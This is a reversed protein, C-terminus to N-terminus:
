FARMGRGLRAWWWWLCGGNQNREGYIFKATEQGKNLFFFFSFFDHQSIKVKNQHSNTLRM